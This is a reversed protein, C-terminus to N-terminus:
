HGCFKVTLGTNPPLTQSMSVTAKYFLHGRLLPEILIFNDIFPCSFPSQMISTVAHSPVNINYNTNRYFTHM